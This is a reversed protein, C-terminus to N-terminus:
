LFDEIVQDKKTRLFAEKRRLAALHHCEDCCGSEKTKKKISKATRLTYKGCDCRCVWKGNVEESLGVVTLRVYREGTLDLQGKQVARTKIMVDSDISKGTGSPKIKPTYYYGRSTVISATKNIPVKSAISELKM